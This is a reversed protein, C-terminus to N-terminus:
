GVISGFDDTTALTSPPTSSCATELVSSSRKLDNETRARSETGGIMEINVRVTAPGGDQEQAVEGKRLKTIVGRVYRGINDQDRVKFRGNKDKKAAISLAQGLLVPDCDRFWNPETLPVDPFYQSWLKQVQICKAKTPLLTLGRDNLIIQPPSSGNTKTLDITM